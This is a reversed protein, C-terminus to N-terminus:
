AGCGLFTTSALVTFPLRPHQIMAKLSLPTRRARRDDAVRASSVGCLWQAFSGFQQDVPKRFSYLEPAVRGPFAEQRIRGMIDPKLESASIIAINTNSSGLQRIIEIGDSLRPCHLDSVGAAYHKQTLKTRVESSSSAIDIDLNLPALIQSALMRSRFHQAQSRYDDILLVRLPMTEDPGAGMPTIGADANTIRRGTMIM